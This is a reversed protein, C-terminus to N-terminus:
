RQIRRVSMIFVVFGVIALGFMILKVMGDANPAIISGFLFGFAALILGVFIGIYTGTKSNEHSVRQSGSRASKSEKSPAQPEEEFFDPGFAM